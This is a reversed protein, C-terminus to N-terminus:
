SLQAILAVLLLASIGFCTLSVWLLGRARPTQPKRLEQIAAYDDLYTQFDAHRHIASTADLRDQIVFIPRDPLARKIEDLIPVHEAFEVETYRLAPMRSDNVGRIATPGKGDIVKWMPARLPVIEPVDTETTAENTGNTYFDADEATTQKRALSIM